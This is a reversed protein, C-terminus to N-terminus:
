DHSFFPVFSNRFPQLKSSMYLVAATQRHVAILHGKKNFLFCVTIILQREDCRATTLYVHWIGFLGIELWTVCKQTIFPLSCSGAETHKVALGDPGNQVSESEETAFATCSDNVLQFHM